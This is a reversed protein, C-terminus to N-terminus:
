HPTPSSVPRSSLAKGEIEAPTPQTRRFIDQGVVTAEWEEGVKTSHTLLWTTLVREDEGGEGHFYQGSWVTVAHANDTGPDGSWVVTWGLPTGYKKKREPQGLRGLLEYQDFVDGVGSVYFGRLEDPKGEVPPNFHLKSGFRNYWDGHITM